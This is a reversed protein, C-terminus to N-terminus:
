GLAPLTSLPVYVSVLYMQGDPGWINESRYYLGDGIERNTTAMNLAFARETVFYFDNDYPTDTLQVTVTGDSSIDYIIQGFANTVSVGVGYDGHLKKAAVDVGQTFWPYYPSQAANGAKALFTDIAAPPQYVIREIALNCQKNTPRKPLIYQSFGLCDGAPDVCPGCYKGSKRGAEEAFVSPLAFLAFASAFAVVFM